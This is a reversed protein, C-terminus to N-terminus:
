PRVAPGELRMGAARQMLHLELQVWALDRPSWPQARVGSVCGQLRRELSGLGQWQLRYIPYGTPHGQPILSGGLRLGARQDHCQTCALDLRGLRLNFLRAGADRHPALRPDPPPAIPRGRATDALLAELALLDEHEPPWAPARQHRERCLAIRHSLTVPRALADDWAPYRAAVDALHRPPLAPQATRRAPTSPATAAHGADAALGHCDACARGAAGARQSWLARGAQVWLQAPNQALDDQMARLAPSMDDYGSRRTTSSPTPAPAQAQTHTQTRAQTHTHTQAQTEIRVQMQMQARAEAMVSWAVLVMACSKRMM